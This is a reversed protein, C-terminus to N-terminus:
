EYYEVTISHIYSAQAVSYNITLTGGTGQTAEAKLDTWQTGFTQTATGITTEGQKVIMTASKSGNNLFNVTVSKVSKSAFYETSLTYSKWYKSSSDGWKWGFIGSYKTPTGNTSPSGVKTGM